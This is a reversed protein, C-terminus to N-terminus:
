VQCHQSFTCREQSCAVVLGLLWTRCADCPQSPNPAMLSVGVLQGGDPGCHFPISSPAPCDKPCNPSALHIELGESEM